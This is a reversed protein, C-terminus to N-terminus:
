YRLVLNKLVRAAQPGQLYELFRNAADVNKTSRIVAAPYTISPAEKTPVEYAIRVRKSIAADTKYVFGAEANGSEVAALAARVNETPVIKASIAPWLGAKQLYAKAYIGAPVAEPSALAIYVVGSQVLGAPSSLDLSSERAVVIVLSNSLISHRSADVILRKEQLQDMKAEDASFFIDAPAGAAIQRALTSSADLNYTIRDAGAAEYNAGIEKLADALSAAAFVMVDAGRTSTTVALLLTFVLLYKM